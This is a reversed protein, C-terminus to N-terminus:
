SAEGRSLDIGRAIDKADYARGFTQNLRAMIDPMRFKAPRPPRAPTLRAFLKGGKTIDVSEGQEIWSAVRPFNNRLDRVTATKM